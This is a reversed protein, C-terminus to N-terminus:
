DKLRARKQITGFCLWLDRGYFITIAAGWIYYPIAVINSYLTVAGFQGVVLLGLCALIVGFIIALGDATGRIGTRPTLVSEGKGELEISVLYWLLGVLLLFVVTELAFEIPIRMFAKM